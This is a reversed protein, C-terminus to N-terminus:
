FFTENFSNGCSIRYYEGSAPIITNPILDDMSCSGDANHYSVWEIKTGRNYIKKSWGHALAGRVIDEKSKDGHVEFGYRCSRQKFSDKGSVWYDWCSSGVDKKSYDGGTLLDAEYNTEKELKNLQEAQSPPKLYEYALFGAGLIFVLVVIGAIKWRRAQKKNM